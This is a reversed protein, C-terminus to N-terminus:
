SDRAFPTQDEAGARADVLAAHQLALLKSYLRLTRVSVDPPVPATRPHLQFAAEGHLQRRVAYFRPRVLRRSGNQPARECNRISSSREGALTGPSEGNTTPANKAKSDGVGFAAEPLLGASRDDSSAPTM